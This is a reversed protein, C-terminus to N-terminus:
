RAWLVWPYKETFGDPRIKIHNYVRNDIYERAKDQATPLDQAYFIDEYEEGCFLKKM